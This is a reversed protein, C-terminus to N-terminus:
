MFWFDITLELQNTDTYNPGENLEYTNSVGMERRGIYYREYKEGLQSGLAAWGHAMSPGDYEWRHDASRKAIAWRHAISPVM